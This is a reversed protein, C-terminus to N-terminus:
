FFTAFQHTGWLRGEATQGLSGAERSRVDVPLILFSVFAVPPLRTRAQLLESSGVHPFGQPRIDMFSM